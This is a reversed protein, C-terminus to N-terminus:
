KLNGMSAQRQSFFLNRSYILLQVAIGYYFVPEHQHVAYVFTIVAGLLSLYWFSVPVVSARQRETAIWQVLFRGFFCSQGMFGFMMWLHNSATLWALM